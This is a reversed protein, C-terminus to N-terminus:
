GTTATTFEVAHTAAPACPPRAPYTSGSAIEVGRGPVPISEVTGLRLAGYRHAPDTRDFADASLLYLATEGPAPAGGLVIRAREGCRVRAPVNFQSDVVIALDGYARVAGADCLARGLADLDWLPLADLEAYGTKPGHRLDMQAGFLAPLRVHGLSTQVF